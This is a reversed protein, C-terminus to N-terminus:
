RRAWARLARALQVSWLIAFLAGFKVLDAKEILLVHVTVLASALYVTRHLSKWRKTGLRRVSFDNSTVALAALVVFATFGLLLYVKELIQTFAQAEFGELTLYLLVHFILYVFTVVGLYRRNLLLFRLAKPFRFSFAILAGITLNLLLYYLAIEGTQHNLEKAPDAGIRDTLLQFVLVFGPVLLAIRFIWSSLKVM